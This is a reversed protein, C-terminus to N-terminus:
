KVLGLYPSAMIVVASAILLPIMIKLAQKLYTPYPVNTLELVGMKTAEPFLGSATFNLGATFASVLVMQGDESGIATGAFLAMAAAGLIPMTIGATSSTGQIFLASVCYALLAVVAFAWVPVGELVSRIWYVFTVSMGETSSGMILSVGRSISVVLTLSVLDAAGRVFEKVFVQQPMKNIVAVIVSGVLFVITFEDFYWDGFYTKTSYYLFQDSKRHM